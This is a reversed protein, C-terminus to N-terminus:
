EIVGNIRLITDRANNDIDYENGDADILKYKNTVYYIKGNYIHSSLICHSLVTNMIDPKFIRDIDTASRVPLNVGSIIQYGGVTYERVDDDILMALEDLNASISDRGVDQYKEIYFSINKESIIIDAAINNGLYILLEEGFSNPHYTAIVELEDTMDFSNDQFYSSCLKVAEIMFLSIKGFNRKTVDKEKDLTKYEKMCEMIIRYRVPNSLIINNIMKVHIIRDDDIYKFLPSTDIDEGKKIKYIFEEISNVIM